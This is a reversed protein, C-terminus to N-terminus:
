SHTLPRHLHPQRRAFAPHVASRLQAELRKQLVLKDDEPAYFDPFRGVIQYGHHLYFQRTKQYEKKSSTEVTILRGGSEDIKKEALTILRGGIGLGQKEPSVAIWYLDWTGHTLPTPGYCVYGAISGGDEAVLINYGSRPGDRLYDDIVERAVLVEESSFEPISDLISLLVARDAPLMPRIVGTM